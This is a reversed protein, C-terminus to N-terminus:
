LKGKDMDDTYKRRKGENMYNIITEDSWQPNAKKMALLEDFGMDLMKSLSTNHILMFDLAKQHKKRGRKM